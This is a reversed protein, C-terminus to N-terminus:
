ATNFEFEQQFLFDGDLDALGCKRSPVPTTNFFSFPPPIQAKCGYYLFKRLLCHNSLCRELYADNKEKEDLAYLREETMEYYSPANPHTVRVDFYTKEMNGFLGAAVINLRAM